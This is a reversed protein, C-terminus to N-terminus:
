KCHVGVGRSVQDKREVTEATAASQRIAMGIAKTDGKKFVLAHADQLISRRASGRGKGVHDALAGDARGIDDGVNALGRLPLHRQGVRMGEHAFQPAFVPQKRVVAVQFVKLRRLACKKAGHPPRIRFGRKAMQQFLQPLLEVLLRVFRRQKGREGSNASINPLMAQEVANQRVAFGHKRMAGRQQMVDDTLRREADRTKRVIIDFNIEGIFRLGIIPDGDDGRQGQGIVFVPLLEGDIFAGQEFVAFDDQALGGGGRDIGVLFAPQRHCPRRQLRRSRSCPTNDENM